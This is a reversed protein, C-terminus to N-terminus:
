PAELDKREAKAWRQIHQSQLTALAAAINRHQFEKGAFAEAIAGLIEYQEKRDATERPSIRPLPGFEAREEPTM